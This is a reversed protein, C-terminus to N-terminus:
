AIGGSFVKTIKWVENVKTIEINNNWACAEGCFFEYHLYGKTFDKNFVVRSVFLYGYENDMTKNAEFKEAKVLKIELNKNQFHYDLKRPKLKGNKLNKFLFKEKEYAKLEDEYRKKNEAIKKESLRTNNIEVTYGKPEQTWASITDLKAIIYLKHKVNGWKNLRKMKDFETMELIVDNIAQNENEIYEKSDYNKCSFISVVTILIFLIKKM